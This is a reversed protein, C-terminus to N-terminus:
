FYTNRSKGSSMQHRQLTECKDTDQTKKIGLLLYEHLLSADTLCGSGTIGRPILKSTLDRRGARRM